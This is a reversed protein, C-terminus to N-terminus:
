TVRRSQKNQCILSRVWITQKYMNPCGIVCCYVYDNPNMNEKSLFQTVHVIQQLNIKSVAGIIIIRRYRQEYLPPVKRNCEFNIVSM